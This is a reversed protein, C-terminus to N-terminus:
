ERYGDDKCAHPFLPNLFFFVVFFLHWAFLQNCPECLNKSEFHLQSKGSSKEFCYNREGSVLNDFLHEIAVRFRLFLAKKTTRQLCVSSASYSKFFFIWKYLVQQLNSFFFFSFFELSKIMKELNWRKWVKELDPFYSCLSWSKKLFELSQVFGSTLVSPVTSESSSRWKGLFVCGCFPVGLTPRKQDETM